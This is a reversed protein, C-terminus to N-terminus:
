SVTRKRFRNIGLWVLVMDSLVLAAIVLPASLHPVQPALAGRLGENAYVMPNVLVLKQLVPFSALTSWPYYACGFMVMPAFVFSFLLGIHNHEVSTGIAFGGASSMLAILTAVILLDVPHHFSIGSNRGLVLWSAPLVVIGPILSQVMGALIKEVALWHIEIPALLRDEIEKTELESITSLTVVQSGTMMMTTSIIGPLLMSKYGATMMGGRIMVQGFVFVFLLPQVMIQFLLTVGNRRALHADRALLATFTKWNM